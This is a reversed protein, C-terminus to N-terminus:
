SPIQGSCCLCYLRFKYIHHFSTHITALVAVIFQSRDSLTNFVKCHDYCSSCGSMDSHLVNSITLKQPLECFQKCSLCFLPCSFRHMMCMSQM